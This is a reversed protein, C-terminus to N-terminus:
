AHSNTTHRCTCLNACSVRVSMKGCAWRERLNGGAALQGRGRWLRTQQPASHARRYRDPHRCYRRAASAWLDRRLRALALRSMGPLYSTLRTPLRMTASPEGCIKKPDSTPLDAAARNIAAPIRILRSPTLETKSGCLLVFRGNMSVCHIPSFLAKGTLCNESAALVNPGVCLSAVLTRSERSIASLAPPSSTNAVKSRSSTAAIRSALKNLVAAADVDRGLPKNFPM